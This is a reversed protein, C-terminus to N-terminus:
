IIGEYTYGGGFDAYYQYDKLHDAENESIEEVEFSVDYSVKNRAIGVGFHVNLKNDIERLKLRLDQETHGGTDNIWVRIKLFEYESKDNKGNFRTQILSRFYKEKIKEKEKQQEEEIQAKIVKRLKWSKKLKFSLYERARPRLQGAKKGSKYKWLKPKVIDM